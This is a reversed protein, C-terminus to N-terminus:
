ILGKVGIVALSAMTVLAVKGTKGRLEGMLVEYSFYLMIIKAAVFGMRYESLVPDPLNPVVVAIFLILFDLPTSKFGGRRRSFKTVVIVFVTFLGFALNYARIMNGHMWSATSTDGLYVAFPILIYLAPWLVFGNVKRVMLWTIAFVALLGLSA